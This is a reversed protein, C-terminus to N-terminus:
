GLGRTWTSPSTASHRERPKLYLVKATDSLGIQFQVSPAGQDNSGVPGTFGTKEFGDVNQATAPRESGM